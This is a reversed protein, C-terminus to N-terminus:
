TAPCLERQISCVWKFGKLHDVKEWVNTKRLVFAQVNRVDAWTDSEAKNDTMEM